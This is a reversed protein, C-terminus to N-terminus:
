SSDRLYTLYGEAYQTNSGGDLLLKRESSDLSGVYVKSGATAVAVYIFHRDDPLFFPFQHWTEGSKVDLTSGVSNRACGDM